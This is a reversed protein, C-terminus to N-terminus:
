AAMHQHRQVGSGWKEERQKKEILNEQSGKTTTTSKSDKIAEVITQQAHVKM